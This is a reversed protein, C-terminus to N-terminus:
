DRYLLEDTDTNDTSAINNKETVNNKDKVTSSTQQHNFLIQKIKGETDQSIAATILASMAIIIMLSLTLAQFPTFNNKYYTETKVDAKVALLLCCAIFFLFAFFGVGWTAYDNEGFYRCIEIFDNCYVLVIITLITIIISTKSKM